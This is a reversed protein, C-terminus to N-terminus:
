RTGEPIRRSLQMEKDLLKFQGPFEIQRYQQMHAPGDVRNQMLQAADAYGAANGMGEIATALLGFHENRQTELQAKAAGHGPRSSAPQTLQRRCQRQFRDDKFRIRRVNRGIEDPMAPIFRSKKRANGLRKGVQTPLSEAFDRM